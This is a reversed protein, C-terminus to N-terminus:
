SRSRSARGRSLRQRVGTGPRRSGATACTASASSAASPTTSRCATRATGPATSVASAPTPATACSAPSRIRPTPTSRVARLCTPELCHNCGMSLYSRSAHPFGDAKSRASAGGTSRRRTATRSTAPSSAASAASASAWTSTSATSSAPPRRAIPCAATSTREGPACRFARRGKCGTSCCCTPCDHRGHRDSPLSMCGDRRTSAIVHMVARVHARADFLGARSM